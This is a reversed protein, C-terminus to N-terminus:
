TDHVRGAGQTLIPEEDVVEPCQRARAAGLLQDRRTGMAPQPPRPRAQAHSIGDPRIGRLLARGDGTADGGRWASIWAAGLACKADRPAPAMAHGVVLFLASVALSWLRVPKGDLVPWAAVVMFVLAFFMGFSANSTSKVRDFSTSEIMHGGSAPCRFCSLRPLALRPDGRVGARARGIRQDGARHLCGASRPVGFDSSFVLPNGSSFAFLRAFPISRM